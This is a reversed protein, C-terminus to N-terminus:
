DESNTLEKGGRQRSRGERGSGATGRFLLWDVLEAIDLVEMGPVHKILSHKCSPCATVLIDAGTEMVIEGANRGAGHALKFDTALVGGGNGCCPSYQRSLRLERVEIGPVAQLVQRPAEYVGLERGLSCPDHYTLSIDQAPPLDLRGADLEEALYESIHVFRIGEPIEIGWEPYDVRFAHICTPCSCVVVGAGTQQIREMTREAQARAEARFGMVYLPEGCCPEDRLMTVDAEGHQLLAVAARAMEPRRYATTCGAYYLVEATAPTPVTELWDVLQSEAEGYPNDSEEINNMMLVAGEPALGMEIVDARAALMVPAIDWRKVCWERCLHCNTCQYVVEVAREDWELLGVQQAFLMLAKGRPLNTDRQTVNGVTCAHRCMLCMRCAMITQEFEEFHM